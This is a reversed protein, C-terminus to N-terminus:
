IRRTSNRRCRCHGHKWSQWNQEQATQSAHRGHGTDHNRMAGSAGSISSSQLHQVADGSTLLRLGDYGVQGTTFSLSENDLVTSLNETEVMKNLERIITGNDCGDGGNILAASICSKKMINRLKTAEESQVQTMVMAGGSRKNASQVRSMVTGAVLEIFKVVFYQSPVAKPFVRITDVTPPPLTFIPQGDMTTQIKSHRMMTSELLVDIKRSAETRDAANSTQTLPKQIRL